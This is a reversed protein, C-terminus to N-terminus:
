YWFSSFITSSVLSGAALKQKNIKRRITQLADSDFSSHKGNSIREDAYISRNGNPLVSQESHHVFSTTSLNPHENTDYLNSMHAHPYVTRADNLRQETQRIIRKADYYTRWSSEIPTPHNSSSMPLM